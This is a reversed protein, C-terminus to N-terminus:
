LHIVPELNQSNTALRAQFGAVRGHVLNDKEAGQLSLRRAGKPMMARM